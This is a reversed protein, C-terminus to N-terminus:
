EKHLLGAAENARAMIEIAVRRPMARSMVTSAVYNFKDPVVVPTRGIAVLTARVVAAPTMTGPARSSTSRVYGPTEVAGSVCAIVDVGSARAEHWLGEALVRMYSKTAAYAVLGPSGQVGALSSMLVLGGKGREVMGPLLVRAVRLAGLCNVQVTEELADFSTSVFPGVPSSAANVVVFGIDRRSALSGPADDYLWEPERLDGAVAEVNGAHRKRLDEAFASLVDARRAVLVLDLGRSALSEAWAAGLGESGGIVLATPGFRDRM